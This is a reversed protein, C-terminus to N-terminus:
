SSDDNNPYNPRITTTGNVIGVMSTMISQIMQLHREDRKEERRLQTEDRRDERQLQMEMLREQSETQMRAIQLQIDGQIKLRKEEREAWDNRNLDIFRKLQARTSPVTTPVAPTAAAPTAAAPTAAAPASAEPPSSTDDNISDEHEQEEDAETFGRFSEQDSEPWEDPGLADSVM